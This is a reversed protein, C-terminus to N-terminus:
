GKRISYCLHFERITSARSVRPSSFFSYRVWGNKVEHVTVHGRDNFPNRTSKDVYTAGITPPVKRIFKM